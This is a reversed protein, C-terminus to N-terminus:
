PTQNSAASSHEPKPLVATFQVGDHDIGRPLPTTDDLDKEYDDLFDNLDEKAEKKPTKCNKGRWPHSRSWKRRRLNIQWTKQKRPRLILLSM